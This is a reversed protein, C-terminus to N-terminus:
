VIYILKFSLCRSLICSSCFPTAVSHSERVANEVDVTPYVESGNKILQELNNGNM